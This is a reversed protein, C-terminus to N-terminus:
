ARVALAEDQAEIAQEPRVAHLPDPLQATENAMVRERPEAALDLDAVVRRVPVLPVDRPELLEHFGSHM